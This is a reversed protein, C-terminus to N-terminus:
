GITYLEAFVHTHRKNLVGVHFLLMLCHPTERPWVQVRQIKSGNM